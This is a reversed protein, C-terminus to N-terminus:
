SPIEPDFSIRMEKVGNIFNSRLRRVPGALKPNELRAIMERFISRLELRALHAGLCYHAGIGFALHDKNDRYIDFRDPDAFKEEDRNASAYYMVVKDGKKIQKGRLEMNEMATRRFQIVAPEYRLIEEVAQPILSPDEICAQLQEPHQQRGVVVMAKGKGELLPAITERFHEVVIQVKQAINYPHLRVWSM